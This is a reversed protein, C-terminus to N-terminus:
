EARPRDHGPSRGTSDPFGTKRVVHLVSDAAGIAHVAPEVDATDGPVVFFTTDNTPVDQQRINHINLIPRASLLGALLALARETQENLANGSHHRYRDRRAFQAGRDGVLDILGECCDDVVGVGTEAEQRIARRM